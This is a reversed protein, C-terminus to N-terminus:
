ADYTFTKRQTVDSVAKKYHQAGFLGSTSILTVESNMTIDTRANPFTVSHTKSDSGDVTIKFTSVTTLESDFAM